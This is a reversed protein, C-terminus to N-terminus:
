FDPDADPVEKEGGNASARDQRRVYDETEFKTMGKGLPVISQVNAFIGGRDSINHQILIQCNSNILKELDFGEVEKDSFKMGRWSELDGRLRAKPHLSNTFKKSVLFRKGGNEANRNESQWWVRVQHKPGWPTTQEGLDEVDVCIAQQLGEPCPAFEVRNDRVIIPM